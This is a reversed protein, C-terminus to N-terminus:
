VFLTTRNHRKINTNNNIKALTNEYCNYRDNHYYNSFNLKHTCNEIASDIVYHM